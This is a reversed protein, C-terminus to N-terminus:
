FIVETHHFAREELLDKITKTKKKEEYDDSWYYVKLEDMYEVYDCIYLDLKSVDADGIALAGFDGAGLLEGNADLVAVVTDADETAPTVTIEFPTMTVSAIGYGNEDTDNIEKTVVGEGNKTVDIHFDWEGDIWWNYYKNIRDALEPYQEHHKNMMETFLQHEIEIEEETFNAYDAEDLGNEAMKANYEDRLEQSVEPVNMEEEPLYGVLKGFSLDVTFEEPIPIEVNYDKIDPGGVSVIDDNWMTDIGLVETFSDLDWGGTEDRAVGKEEYFADLAKSYKDYAQWDTNTESLPIRYVGAFTHEDVMKGELRSNIANAVDNYEDDATQNYSFSLSADDLTLNILGTDQFQSTAPFEDETQIMMAINLAEDNCYVESLTITTGNVTKSYASDASAAQADDTGESEAAETGDTESELEAKVLTDDLPKAYKSYDGSFGLSDGLAEFVHGVVPIQAALAPNSICIVTFTAAAAAFGATGKMFISKRKKSSKQKKAIDNAYDQKFQNSRIREFAKNKAANVSDPVDFERQMTGKIKDDLRTDNATPFDIQKKM